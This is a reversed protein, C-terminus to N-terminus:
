EHTLVRRQGHQESGLVISYVLQLSRRVGLGQMHMCVELFLARPLCFRKDLRNKYKMM